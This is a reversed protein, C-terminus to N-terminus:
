AGLLKWGFRLCNGAGLQLPSISRTHLALMRAFLEPSQAFVSFVRRRLRPHGDLLLLLEGMARPVRSIRAHAQQYRGLEGRGLLGLVPKNAVGAAMAEALAIAQQFALSLGDGTIADASGSADGVLAIRGRAVAQLRSTSTIGGMPRGEARADAGSQLLKERLGAFPTGLAGTTPTSPRLVTELRAHPDSTLLAVCIEQASVPTVYVQCCDAWYVEVFPSWPAV